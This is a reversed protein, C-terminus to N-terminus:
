SYLKYFMKPCFPTSNSYNLEYEYGFYLVDYDLVKVIEGIPNLLFVKCINMKEYEEIWDHITLYPEIIIFSGNKDSKLKISKINKSDIFSNDSDNELQVLFRNSVLPEFAMLQFNNGISNFSGKILKEVNKTELIIKRKRNVISM